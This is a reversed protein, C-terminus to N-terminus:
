SGVLYPEACNKAKQAAIKANPLAVTFTTGKGKGESEATIVGDHSLVIKKIMYLGLGTGKVNSHFRLFPTFLKKLAREDMGSGNDKVWFRNISDDQEFGVTIIPTEQNGMYKIANDLFNGFVQIMRNRDGYIDPLNDAIDLRVGEMSLKGSILTRALNMIKNTDLVENRNDITGLRAIETIDSILDNMTDCSVDILGLYEELNPFDKMAIEMPILGAIGKINNLPSKLDHSVAFTFRQIEENRASLEDAVEMLKDKQQLLQQTREDIRRELQAQYKKISRVKNAYAIYFCGFIFFTASLRFWWTKWFPPNVTIYLRRENDAWVGDSNTSKIRLTYNGPDLNTYTANPHNGVYNWETEFGELFYAYDVKEPHRYTLAKFDFDVVSNNYNLTISDVQGIDRKLIGSGDNPAISRNFIKMGSIFVMPQNNRKGVENPTFINFGNTGGFIFEGKVSNLFSGANFENSQLGDGMDYDLTKGSHTNYKTIGGETSLWLNNDTDSLIGKIANNKFGDSKTLALFSDSEPLYQNLGGQTGIWVTGENDQVMSNVFDNSLPRESDMTHYHVSTWTDGKESLRFLGSTQTGIWIRGNDEEMISYVSTVEIGDPEDVLTIDRHKGSEPYYIQVGGFLSIIWIRGKKDQHLGTVNNSKLFSNESNM